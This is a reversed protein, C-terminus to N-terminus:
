EDQCRLTVHASSKPMINMAEGSTKDFVVIGGNPIGLGRVPAQKPDTKRGSPTRVSLSHSKFEEFEELPVNLIMDSLFTAILFSMWLFMKKVDINRFYKKLLICMGLLFLVSVYQLTPITSVRITYGFVFVSLIMLKIATYTNIKIKM